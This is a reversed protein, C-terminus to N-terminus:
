RSSRGDPDNVRSAMGDRLGHVVSRVDAAAEVRDENPMGTRHKGRGEEVVLRRTGTDTETAAMVESGLEEGHGIPEALRKAELGDIRIRM